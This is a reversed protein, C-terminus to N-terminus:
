NGLRKEGCAEDFKQEWKDNLEARMDDYLNAGNTTKAYEALVAEEYKKAEEPNNERKAKLTEAFQMYGKEFTGLQEVGFKKLFTADLEPSIGMLNAAFTDNGRLAGRYFNEAGNKSDEILQNPNQRYDKAIHFRNLQAANEIDTTMSALLAGLGVGASAGSQSGEPGLMSGILAGGTGLTVCSVILNLMVESTEYIMPALTPKTNFISENKATSEQTLPATAQNQQNKAVNVQPIANVM